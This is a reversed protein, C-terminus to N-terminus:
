SSVNRARSKGADFMSTVSTLYDLTELATRRWSYEAARKRGRSVLENRGDADSLVDALGARISAVSEPDVLRAADGAVEALSSRNSTVVATGAAMAEVVPLGFGEGLSPFAFATAGAYLAALTEDDVYGLMVIDDRSAALRETRSGRWGPEGVIALKHRGRVEPPLGAFAEVLRPLNKRPEITGVALLYGGTLGHREPVDGRTARAFREDVGLPVVVARGAVGPFRSLLDDRTAESDCIFGAARRVALPLTMREMRGGAPSGFRGDLGFLDHVTAVARSGGVAAMLFSNAALVVDCERSALVGAHAAWVPDPTSVLRAKANALPWPARGYLVLEVDAELEVLARALERVYRGRGAPVEAAARADLGIRIPRPRM